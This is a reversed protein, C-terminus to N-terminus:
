LWDPNQVLVYRAKGNGVRHSIARVRASQHLHNNIEAIEAVAPNIKGVVVEGSGKLRFEFTRPTPLLGEFEGELFVEERQINKAELRVFSRTVESMQEFQFRREETELACTVENTALIKLFARLAQIARGDVGNVAETLEDDSGTSSQLLEQTKLLAQAVVTKEGLSLQDEVREEIEFGFSGFAAGTILLDFNKAGPVSGRERLPEIRNWAAAVQQVANTYARTALLGFSASIGRSGWVPRGRYTIATRAPIVRKQEAEIQAELSQLRALWSNREIIRSEPIEALFQEVVKKESQLNQSNSIMNFIM